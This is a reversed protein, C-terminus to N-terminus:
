KGLVLKVMRRVVARRKSNKPLFREAKLYYKEFIQYDPNDYKQMNAKTLWEDWYDALDYRKNVGFDDEFVTSSFINIDTRKGHFCLYDFPRSADGYRYGIYDLYNNFVRKFDKAYELAANQMTRTVLQSFMDMDIKGFVLKPKDGEFELKKVSSDVKSVFQERVLYSIIPHGFYFTRNNFSYRRKRDYLKDQGTHFYFSDLRIGCLEEISAEVRGNYGADVICENEGFVSCFYEKAKLRYENIGKWDIYKSITKIVCSFNEEDEIKKAYDIGKDALENKIREEKQDSLGPKLIDVFKKPTAEYVVMKERFSWLDGDNLIDCLPIINRSMYTYESPTTHKEQNMIDYICKLIYGDRSLFHIKNYKETNSTIWDVVAWMHMGLCFYGIYYPDTDFDSESNFGTYPNDYFRNIVLSLMSRIGLNESVSLFFDEESGNVGYVFAATRGKIVDKGYGWFLDSAKPLYFAKINNDIAKKYDTEYNDGIHLIESNKYGVWKPLKKFANGTYKGIRTESSVFIDSFGKYGNRNLIESIVNRPLYMDSTIYVKKGSTIALDFLEKGTQRPVCFEYELEIERLKIYEVKKADLHYLESFAAYIEDITIDEYDPNKKFVRERCVNEASIRMPEVNTYAKVDFQKYYESDLFRFLDTPAYLNRLILTDFVDFSIVKYTNGAIDKKLQEYEKFASCIPTQVSNFFSKKETDSVISRRFYYAGHINCFSEAQKIAEKYLENFNSISDKQCIRDLLKKAIIKGYPMGFDATYESFKEYNENLEENNWNISISRLPSLNSYVYQKNKSDYYAIDATVIEANEDEAKKVLMRCYDVSLYDEDNIALVYACDIYAKKSQSISEFFERESVVEINKYTQESIHEKIKEFLNKKKCDIVITLM